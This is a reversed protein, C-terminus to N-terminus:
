DLLIMLSWSILYDCKFLPLHTSGSTKLHLFVFPWYTFSFCETDKTVLFICILVVNLTKGKATSSSATSLQSPPFTLKCWPHPPQYTQWSANSPGASLYMCATSIPSLPSCFTKLLLCPTLLPTFLPLQLLSPSVPPHIRGSYITYMYSIVLPHNFIVVRLNWRVLWFSSWWSFLTVSGPLSTPPLM